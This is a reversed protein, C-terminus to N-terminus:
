AKKEVLCWYQKVKDHNSSWINSLITHFTDLYPTIEPGYKGTNPCKERLTHTAEHMYADDFQSM